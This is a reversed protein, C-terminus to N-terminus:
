IVGTQVVVCSPVDDTPTPTSLVFNEDDDKNLLQFITGITDLKMTTDATQYVEVTHPVVTTADSTAIKVRQGVVVDAPANLIMWAGKVLCQVTTTDESGLAVNDKAQFIGSSLNAVNSAASIARLKGFSPNVATSIMKRNDITYLTGKEIGLTTKTVGNTTSTPIQLTRTLDYQQYIDDGPKYPQIGSPQPM